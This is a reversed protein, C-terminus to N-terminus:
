VNLGKEILEAVKMEMSKLMAPLSMAWIIQGSRTFMQTNKAFESQKQCAQEPTVYGQVGILEHRLDYLITKIHFPEFSEMMDADRIIRELSDKPENVFPFETVRILREIFQIDFSHVAEHVAACERMGKVALEINVSDPRRGTHQFDHFLCAIMLVKLDDVEDSERELQYLEYARMAMRICHGTNHYGLNTAFQPQQVYEYVKRLSCMDIVCEFMAARYQQAVSLEFVSSNNTM